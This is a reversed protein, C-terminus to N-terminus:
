APTAPRAKWWAWALLGLLALTVAGSAAFREVMSAGQPDVAFSMGDRLLLAVAAVALVHRRGWGDRRSWHLLLGCLVALAAVAIVVGTWSEEVLTGAALLPLAAPGVLWPSLARGAVPERRPLTFAAVVLAGAIVAAGFQRAGFPQYGPEIVYDHCFYAATALYAAIVLPLSVKGLWARDAISPFCAEVVAIPAAFSFIAHGGVFILLQTADVDAGPILTPLADWFPNDAFNEHHMLAQDILGAQVLGFVASLLLITPWGRGTRRAAERIVVAVTGYLPMVIGIGILLGLPNLVVGQYGSLFEACFPSLAALAFGAGFRRARGQTPRSIRMATM